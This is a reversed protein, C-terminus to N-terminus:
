TIVGRQQAAVVDHQRQQGAGLPVVARRQPIRQGAYKGVAGLGVDVQQPDHQGKHHASGLPLHPEAAGHVGHQCRRTRQCQGKANLLVACKQAVIVARNGPLAAGGHVATRLKQKHQLIGQTIDRNQQTCQILVVTKDPM